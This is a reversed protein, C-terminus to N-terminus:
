RGLFWGSVRSLGSRAFRAVGSVARAPAFRWGQTSYSFRSLLWRPGDIFVLLLLGMLVLLVGGIAMARTVGSTGTFALQASNVATAHATTATGGGSGSGTTTGTSAETTTVAVTTSTGGNALAIVPAIPTTSPPGSASDSTAESNDPYSTCDATELVGAVSLSLTSSADQQVTIGGTGATFPGLQSPADINLTLGDAPITAPIPTDYNIPGVALTTPTAGSVDLQENVQGTIDTDGIESALTALDNPINVTTVLNDVYFQEGPTPSAPSLSSTTTVGNLVINALGPISCYLEYSPTLATTSM